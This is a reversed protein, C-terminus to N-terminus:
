EGNEPIIRLSALVPGRSKAIQRSTVRGERLLDKESLGMGGAAYTLRLEFTLSERDVSAPLAPFDAKKVVRKAAANLQSSSPRALQDAAIVDGDRDITVRFIATGNGSGMMRTRPYSMASNVADGAEDAWSHLKSYGDGASVGSSLAFAASLTAAAVAKSIKSLTM